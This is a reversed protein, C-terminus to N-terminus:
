LQAAIPNACTWEGRGPLVKECRAFPYKEGGRIANFRQELDDAGRGNGFWVDFVEGNVLIASQASGVRGSTANSLKDRYQKVAEPMFFRPPVPSQVVKEVHTYTIHQYAPSQKLKPLEIARWALCPPCDSGGFSVFHIDIKPKDQALLTTALLTLAFGTVFKLGV